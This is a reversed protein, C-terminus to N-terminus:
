CTAPADDEITLLADLGLLGLLRRLQGSVGRLVLQGGARDALRHASVLASFGATDMFTVAGLDAVVPGGAEVAARLAAALRPGTEIDVEGRVAVVTTESVTRRSVAFTM